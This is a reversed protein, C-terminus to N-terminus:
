IEKFHSGNGMLFCHLICKVQANWFPSFHLPHFNLQSFDIESLWTAMTPLRQFSLWGGADEVERFTMAMGVGGGGGAMGTEM